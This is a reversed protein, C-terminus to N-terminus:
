NSRNPRSKIKKAPTGGFIGYSEVNRTVVSGAAVVAGDEVTVGNFVTCQAGIWCGVGLQLIQDSDIIPNQAIPTPRKDLHYGEGGVLYCYGAIITDKEIVVRNASFITCNYGINVNEQLEIDGSKCSLNTNRGIFVGDSISIGRNGIGKSDLVCNDDILVNNGIHVKRPHRIVTNCGFIVNKGVSGLITPYLVKRLALGLAGPVWSALIQVLEFKVLFWISSEGVILQQYKALASGQASGYFKSSNGTMYDGYRVRNQIVRLVYM